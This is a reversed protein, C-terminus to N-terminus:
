PVWIITGKAPVAGWNGNRIFPRQGPGWGSPMHQATEWVLDEDRASRTAAYQHWTTKGDAIIKVPGSSPTRVSGTHWLSQIEKM